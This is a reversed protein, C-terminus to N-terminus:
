FEIRLRMQIQRSGSLERAAGGAILSTSRAVQGPVSINAAPFAFHPTNFIDTIMAQYNVKLKETVRFEKVVSLHHLNLGRSELINVGSNGFRGRPPVVFASADFMRTM